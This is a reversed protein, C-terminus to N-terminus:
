LVALYKNLKVTERPTRDRENNRRDIWTKTVGSLSCNTYLHVRQSLIGWYDVNSEHQVYSM